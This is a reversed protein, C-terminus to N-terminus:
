PTISVHSCFPLQEDATVTKKSSKTKNLSPKCDQVLTILEQFDTTVQEVEMNIEDQLPSQELIDQVSQFSKQLGEKGFTHNRTNADYKIVFAENKLANLKINDDYRSVMQQTLPDDSYLVIRCNCNSVFKDISSHSLYDHKLSSMSQAAAIFINNFSRARAVFNADSHRNNSLDAFAQFEDYCVFSYKGKPVLHSYNYVSKYFENAMFRAIREGTNGSVASFRLVIIKNEEFVQKMSFRNESNELNCFNRVIGPTNMMEDLALWICRLAYDIQDFFNSKGSTSQPFRFIHHARSKIRAIFSDIMPMSYEDSAFLSANKEFEDFLQTAEKGNRLLSAILALTPTFQKNKLSMIKLLEFTDVAIGVGAMHFHRNHDSPRSLHAILNEFFESVQSVTFDQLINIPRASLESGVEEIDGERGYKKAITRLQDTLNGKIDIILGAFGKSMLKDLVPIITSDTKGSGSTGLALIHHNADACTIANGSDFKILVDKQNLNTTVKQNTDKQSVFGINNKKYSM